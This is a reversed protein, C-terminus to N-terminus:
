GARGDDRNIADKLILAIGFILVVVLFFIIGAASFSEKGTSIDGVKDPIREYLVNVFVINVSSVCVAIFGLIAAKKRPFRRALAAMAAYCLVGLVVPAAAIFVSRLVCGMMVIWAFGGAIAGASGLM